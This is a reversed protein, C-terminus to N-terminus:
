QKAGLKKGFRSRVWDRLLYHSALFALTAGLASSFSVVLTGLPVGSLAGGALTMVAAGPLSLATVAVYGGFYMAITQVPHVYDDPVQCSAKLFALNFYRGLDFVFYAAVAAVIALTVFAQRPKM